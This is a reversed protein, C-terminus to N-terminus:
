NGLAARLAAIVADLDTRDMRPYLPLTVERAAFRETQPLTVAPFIRRYYSFQHIPPYHISTQIGNAKMNDMFQWRSTEKPLL